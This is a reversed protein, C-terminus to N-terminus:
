QVSKDNLNLFCYRLPPKYCSDVGGNNKHRQYSVSPTAASFPFIRSRAMFRLNHQRM